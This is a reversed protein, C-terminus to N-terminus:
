SERESRRTVVLLILAALAGLLVNAEMHELSSSAIQTAGYVASPTM